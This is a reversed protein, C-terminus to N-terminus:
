NIKNEKEEVTHNALSSIITKNNSETCWTLKEKRTLTPKKNIIKAKSSGSVNNVEM